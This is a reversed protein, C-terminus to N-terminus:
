QQFGYATVAAGVGGSGSAPLSVSIPTNAASAPIPYPLNVVLSDAAVGVGAPFTFPHYLTTTGGTVTMTAVLASTAGAGTATYGTIYTIKGSANPLTANAAANAKNGSADYVLTAGAPLPSGAGSPASGVVNVRVSNNVEDYGNQSM